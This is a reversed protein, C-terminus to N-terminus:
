AKMAELDERRYSLNIDVDSTGPRSNSSASTGTTSESDSPMVLDPLSNPDSPIDHINGPEIDGVSWISTQKEQQM